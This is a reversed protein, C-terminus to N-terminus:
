TAARVGAQSAGLVHCVRCSGCFSCWGAAATAQALVGGNVECAPADIDDEGIAALLRFGVGDDAFDGLEAAFGDRELKVDTVALGKGSEGLLNAGGQLRVPM